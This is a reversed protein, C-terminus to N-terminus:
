QVGGTSNQSTQIHDLRAQLYQVMATHGSQKELDLVKKLTETEFPRQRLDNRATELDKLAPVAKQDSSAQIKATIVDLSAKSEAPAIQQLIGLESQVQKKYLDDVQAYKELSQNQAWFEKVKVSAEESKKLHPTAQQSLLQLYEQEQEGSLGQPMPLGLVESYFRQNEKAVMDIAVLQATWDQAAIASNAVKDLDELIKVRAKLTGALKRQNSSDIQSQAFKQKLSDLEKMFVQRGAIKGAETKSLTPQRLAAVAPPSAAKNNIEFYLRALLEPNRALVTKQAEIEKLPNNSARVLDAAVMQRKEEDKSSRLYERYFSQPDKEALLSYHALKLAKQDQSLQAFQLKQATDLATRFDLNLESLWLKRELAFEREEKNLNEKLLDDAAVRAETYKGLKEALIIKNKLYVKKDEASADQPSFQALVAYAQEPNTKALSASQSLLAKEKVNAFSAKAQPFRQAFEMSWATMKVDEKMEGLADLALDAAQMKIKEDGAKTSLALAHFGTAATAYDGANYIAYIKQYEVDLGKSNLRSSQIYQDQTQALLKADKSAEAMEISTLLTKELKQNSEANVPDKLIWQAAQNNWSVATASDKLEHAVQAGWINMDVDNPFQQLYAAYANKLEPTLKSKEVRNWTLVYQRLLKQMDQCDALGCGQQQGWLHLAREFNQQAATKEGRDFNIQALHIESELRLGPDKQRENVYSWAAIAGNRDGLRELERALRTVNPLKASEPSLEYLSKIDDVNAGQKAMFTALDQSVEVLFSQEVQTESTGGRSQWEKTKLLTQLQEVAAKSEGLNFSCWAMRYAALGRSSASPIKLVEAFASRAEQFQRAKFKLEALSLHAEALDNPSVNKDMLARYSSEAQVLDGQMEYLHGMQLIVKGQSSAPVTPLVENYYKLAQVRDQAGAQCHTCGNNLDEMFALRAREAHLDALRLAVGTRAPDKPAINLYVSTLKQILLTQTKQDIGAQAQMTCVGLVLVVLISKSLNM